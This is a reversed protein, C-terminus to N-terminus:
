APACAASCRRARTRARSRLCSECRLRPHRPTATRRGRLGRSLAAARPARPSSLVIAAVGAPMGSVANTVPNRCVNRVVGLQADTAPSGTARYRRAYAYEGHKGRPVKRAERQCPRICVARRVPSALPPLLPESTRARRTPELLTGRSPWREIPDHRTATVLRSHHQAKRCLRQSRRLRLLRRSRHHLPPCRIRRALPSTM